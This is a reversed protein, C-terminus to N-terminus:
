AAAKGDIIVAPHGGGPEQIGLSLSITQETQRTRDKLQFDGASGINCRRIYVNRGRGNAAFEVYRVAAEIQEPPTKTQAREHKGAIPTYDVKITADDAIDGGPVIYLRARGADLVYDDTADYTTSADANTVVTKAATADVALYGMRKTDSVGLQYWRGKKVTIEEDTVATAADAEDAPNEGQLMLALNEMSQDHLALTGAFDRQTVADVLKRATPGDGSFVQAREETSTLTMGVSDGVYREGTTDGDSDLLDVFVEGAGIVINDTYNASARTM